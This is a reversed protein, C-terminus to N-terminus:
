EGLWVGGCGVCACLRACRNFMAFYCNGSALSSPFQSDPGVPVNVLTLNRLTLLSGPLLNLLSAQGNFDIETPLDPQGIVYVRGSYNVAASNLPMSINGRVYLRLPPLTCNFNASTTSASTASASTANASTANASTAIASTANASTANAAAAAAATSTAQYASADALRSLLEAGSSARATLCPPPTPTGLALDCTININSATFNPSAWSSVVVFNQNVQM